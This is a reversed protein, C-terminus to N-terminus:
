ASVDSPVDGFGPVLWHESKAQSGHANCDYPHDSYADARARAAVAGLPESEWVSVSREHRQTRVNAGHVHGEATSPHVEPEGVFRERYVGAKLWRLLARKGRPPVDSSAAALSTLLMAVAVALGITGPKARRIM